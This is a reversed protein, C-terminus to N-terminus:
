PTAPSKLQAQRARIKTIQQDAIAAEASLNRSRLSDRYSEFIRAFSELLEISTMYDFVLESSEALQKFAADADAIRGAARFSEILDSFASIQRRAATQYDTTFVRAIYENKNEPSRLYDLPQLMQEGTLRLRKQNTQILEETKQGRKYVDALRTEIDYTNVRDFKSSVASARQFMTAAEDLKNMKDAYLIGLNELAVTLNYGTTSFGEGFTQPQKEYHSILLQYYQEAKPYNGLREKYLAALNDLTEAANRHPSPNYNLALLFQSEAVDYKQLEVYKDGLDNLIRDMDEVKAKADEQRQKLFLSQLLGVMEFSESAKPREGGLQYTLGLDSYAQILAIAEKQDLRRNDRLKKEILAALEEYLAAAEAYKARGRYYLSIENLTEQYEPSEPLQQRSSKVKQYFNEVEEDRGKGIYFRAMDEQVTVLSASSNPSLLQARSLAEKYNKEAHNYEADEFKIAGAATAPEPNNDQSKSVGPATSRKPINNEPKSVDPVTALKDAPRAKAARSLKPNNSVINGLEEQAHALGFHIDFETLHDDDNKTRGQKGAWDAYEKWLSEAHQYVKVAERLNNGDVATLKRLTAGKNLLLGMRSFHRGYRTKEDTAPQKEEEDLKALAENFLV